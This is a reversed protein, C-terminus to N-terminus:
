ETPSWGTVSIWSSSAPVWEEVVRPDKLIITGEQYESRLWRVGPEDWHLIHTSSDITPPSIPEEWWYETENFVFSNFLQFNTFADVDSLYHGNIFAARKRFEPTDVKYEKYTFGDNYFEAVSTETASDDFTCTDLVEYGTHNNGVTTTESSLKAFFKAM